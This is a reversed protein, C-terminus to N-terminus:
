VMDFRHQKVIPSSTRVTNIALTGRPRVDERDGLWLGDARKSAGRRLRDPKVISSSITTRTTAPTSTAIVPFPSADANEPFERVDATRTTPVVSNWARAIAM